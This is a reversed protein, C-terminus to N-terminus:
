KGTGYAAGEAKLLINLVKAEALESADDALIEKGFNQRFVSVIYSLTNSWQFCQKNHYCFFQM